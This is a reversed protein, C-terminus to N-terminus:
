GVVAQVYCTKLTTPEDPRNDTFVETLLNYLQVDVAKIHNRADAITRCLGYSCDTMGHTQMNILFYAGAGEAFYEAVSSMAYIDLRWLQHTRANTYAEQLQHQEMANLGYKEVVHVFEHVLINDHHSYPEDPECMVIDSRVIGITNAVGAIEEYKRGDSLCTHSCAGDCRNHCEPTDALDAFEPFVTVKEPSTFIGAGSNAQAIGNFVRAPALKLTKYIEVAAVYLVTESTLPSGVITIWNGTAPKTHPAITGDQAVYFSKFGPPYTTRHTPLHRALWERDAQSIPIYESSM